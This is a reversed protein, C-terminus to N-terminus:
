EFLRREPVLIVDGELLPFNNRLEAGESLANYDIEFVSQLGTQPDTRRLQVRQTAAFNTFGGSASLAQLFTTGELMEKPGPASIEGLFYILVMEPEAEPIPLPEEVPAPEVSVFVDPPTQFNGALASSLAAQIQSVTRGRARVTGALPFSVRGDPLVVTNRNLDADQLVEISLRDGSKVRYSDQASAQVSTILLALCLGLFRRLM